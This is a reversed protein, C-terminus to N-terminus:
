FSEIEAKLNAMDYKLTEALEAGGQYKEETSNRVYEDNAEFHEPYLQKLVILSAASAITEERDGTPQFDLGFYSYFVVHTLEHAFQFAIKGERDEPQIHLRVALFKDIIPASTVPVYGSGGTSNDVYFDIQNMQKGFTADFLEKVETITKEFLAYNEIGDTEDALMPNIEWHQHSVTKPDSTFLDHTVCLSRVAEALTDWSYEAKRALEAGQQAEGTLARVHADYAEFEGPYLENVTLLALASCLAKEGEVTPSEIRLYTDCVVHTLMQALQYAIQAESDELDIGLKIVELKGLVPVVSPTYGSGSTANDVYFPLKDMQELTFAEDFLRKVEYAVQYFRHFNGEQEDELDGNITWHTQYHHADASVVSAEQQETAPEALEVSESEKVPEAEGEPPRRSRSEDGRLSANTDTSDQIDQAKNETEGASNTNSANPNTAAGCGTLVIGLALTGILWRRIQQWM